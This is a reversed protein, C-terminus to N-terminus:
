EATFSLGEMALLHIHYPPDGVGAIYRKHVDLSMNRFAVPYYAIPCETGALRVITDGGGGSIQIESWAGVLDGSTQLAPWDEPMISPMEKFGRRSDLCSGSVLDWLRLTGDYGWSILKKESLCFAVNDVDALHGALEVLQTGSVTDWVKILCDSGGTALMNSDSNFAICLVDDWHNFLKRKNVARTDWLEVTNNGGGTALISGSPSFSLCDAETALVGLDRIGSLRGGVIRDPVQWLRITNDEALGALLKGDNNFAVARVYLHGQKLVAVELNSSTDWLKIEGGTENGAASALIRGSPHFALANISLFHSQEGYLTANIGTWNGVLSTIKSGTSASWLAIQKENCACVITKGDPSFCVCNVFGNANLVHIELLSEFVWLRVTGDKSGSAITKGDPSFCVCTVSGSHANLVHMERGSEIEWLRVTHDESATVVTQGDPSIALCNVLGGHGIMTFLKKGSGM